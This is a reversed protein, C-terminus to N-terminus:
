VDVSGLAIVFFCGIAVSLGIAFLVSGFIACSLPLLSCTRAVGTIERHWCSRYLVIFTATIPILVYISLEIWWIGLLRVAPRAAWIIFVFCVFCVFWAIVIPSQVESPPESENLVSFRSLFVAFPKIIWKVGSLLCRGWVNKYLDSVCKPRVYFASGGGVRPTSQLRLPL